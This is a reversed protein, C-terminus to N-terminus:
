NNNILPTLALFYEYGHLSDKRLQSKLVSEGNGYDTIITYKHNIEFFGESQNNTITLTQEGSGWFQNEKNIERLLYQGLPSEQEALGIQACIENMANERMQVGEPYAPIGIQYEDENIKSITAIAVEHLLRERISDAYVRRIESLKEDSLTTSRRLQFLLSNVGNFEQRDFSVDFPLQRRTKKPILRSDQLKGPISTEGTERDTPAVLNQAPPNTSIVAVPSHTKTSLVFYLALGFVAFVCLVILKKNKKTNFKYKDIDM